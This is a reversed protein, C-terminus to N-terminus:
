LIIFVISFLSWQKFEEVSMGNFASGMLQGVVKNYKKENAEDFFLGLKKIDKTNIFEHISSFVPDKLLKPNNEVLEEVRAFIGYFHNYVPKETWLTGDNDFVAIRDSPILYNESTSDTVSEVFDVIRHKNANDNWSILQDSSGEGARDTSNSICGLMMITFLISFSVKM